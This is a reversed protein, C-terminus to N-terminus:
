LKEPRRLSEGEGALLKSREGAYMVTLRHMARTCAIYLLGRDKETRYTDQAVDPVIVEDFELGKSMQISAISVGNVFATSEPAIRNVECDESLLEAMREAEENTRMLIGMSANPGAAFRHIEKKIQRIEEKRDACCIVDPEEGHREVPEILDNPCIRKAFQIIEWTSRYSKNLMVFEANKYLSRMDKLTHLHNPNIVQGFDGLITKPCRFMENLVAFQVPTYDQMEDIVLHKTIGNERFGEFVGYLYLFPFVDEWALTKAAPMVFFDAIGMKIYFDKYVALPNKIILMAELSKRIQASRPLTEERINETRLRELIDEAALELRRKVPQGEYALFRARIWEKTVHFVGFRYEEPSFVAYPLQKKYENILRLFRMSSKFRIREARGKDMKKLPDEEPLFGIVKELQHHAIDSLSTGSIPEEGLEPIVNSIYDGFVKNPSLITVERSRLRDQFRYLLYAIRHLAISTKGSGAAGQIILTEAKENRIIRNQEKQITSIISKMKEDSTHNLEKLLVEDRVNGSSELAYELVGATIKFQRKGTLEGGIYGAPAEFGAPGNEFDYFLGAVPARWDFILPERDYQFAFRGIYYTEAHSSGEELFDIRAFYPSEKLRVLRNRGEAAFAGTRDTQKLLLENQFMEDPDIEGRNDAMYRKADRYERELQGVSNEAKDLAKELIANIRALHTIEEPFPIKNEEM